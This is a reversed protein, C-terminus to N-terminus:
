GKRYVISHNDYFDQIKSSEGFKEYGNGMDLLGGMEEIHPFFVHSADIGLNTDLVGECINGKCQGPIFSILRHKDKDFYKSNLLLGKYALSCENPAVLGTQEAEAKLMKESLLVTQNGKREQTVLDEKTLDYKELIEQYQEPLASSRLIRNRPRRHWGKDQRVIRGNKESRPLEVDDDVIVVLKGERGSDQTYQLLKAGLEFTYPSFEGWRDVGLEVSRNGPGNDNYLLPLHGAVIRLEKKSEDVDEKLISELESESQIIKNVM